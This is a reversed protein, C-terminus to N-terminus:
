QKDRLVWVRMVRIDSAKIEELSVTKKRERKGLGAAKRKRDFEVRGGRDRRESVREVEKQRGKLVGGRM